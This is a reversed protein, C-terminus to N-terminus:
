HPAVRSPEAHRGDRRERETTSQRAYLVGEAPAGGASRCGGGVLLTTAVILGSTAEIGNKGSGALGVGAGTIGGLLIVVGLWYFSPHFLRGFVVFHVGVVAAFWAPVYVAHGVANLLAAGGLLAVVEAIAVLRYARSTFMSRADAAAPRWLLAGRAIIFVAVAIAAVRVTVSISGSLGFAGWQAWAAGFVGSIMAGTLAGRTQDLPLSNSTAM